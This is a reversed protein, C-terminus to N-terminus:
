KLVKQKTMPNLLFSIDIKDLENLLTDKIKLYRYGEGFYENIYKLDDKEVQRYENKNNIKGTSDYLEKGYKIVVHNKTKHIYLETDKILHNIILFLEYCAGRQFLDKGFLLTKEYFLDTALDNIFEILKNM